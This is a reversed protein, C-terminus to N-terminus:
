ALHNTADAYDAGDAHNYDVFLVSRRTDDAYDASDACNYNM